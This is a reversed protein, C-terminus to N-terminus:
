QAAFSINIIMTYRANGVYYDYYQIEVKPSENNLLKTFIPEISREIRETKYKTEPDDIDATCIINKKELEDLITLCMRADSFEYNLNDAKVVKGVVRNYNRTNDPNTYPVDQLSANAM